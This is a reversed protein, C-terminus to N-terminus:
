KINESIRRAQTHATHTKKYIDTPKILGRESTEDTRNHRNIYYNFLLIQRSLSNFIYIEYIINCIGLNIM